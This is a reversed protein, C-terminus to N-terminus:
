PPERILEVESPQLVGVGLDQHPVVRPNERAEIPKGELSIGGAGVAHLLPGEDANWSEDVLRIVSVQGENVSVSALQPGPGSMRLLGCVRTSTTPDTSAATTCTSKSTCTAAQPTAALALRASNSVQGSVSAM